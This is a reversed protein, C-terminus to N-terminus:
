PCPTSPERWIWWDRRNLAATVLDIVVEGPQAVPDPVHQLEFRPEAAGLTLRPARM